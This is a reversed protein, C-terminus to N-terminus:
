YVEKRRKENELDEAADQLTEINVETGCVKCLYRLSEVRKETKDGYRPKVFELTDSNLVLGKVDTRAVSPEYIEELDHGGCKKCTFVDEILVIM